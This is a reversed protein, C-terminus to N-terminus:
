ELNTTRREDNKLEENKLKEMKGAQCGRLIETGKFGCASCKSMSDQSLCCGPAPCTNRDGSSTSKVRQSMTSGSRSKTVASWVPMMVSCFM